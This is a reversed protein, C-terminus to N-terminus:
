WSVWSGTHLLLCLLDAVTNAQRIFCAGILICMATNDSAARDRTGYPGVTNLLNQVNYNTLLDMSVIPAERTSLPKGLQRQRTAIFLPVVEYRSILFLRFNRPGTRKLDKLFTKTNRSQVSPSATPKTLKWTHVYM